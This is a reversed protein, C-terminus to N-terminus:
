CVPVPEFRRRRKPATKRHPAQAQRYRPLRLRLAAVVKPSQEVFLYSTLDGPRSCRSRVAFRALSWASMWRPRDGNALLRPIDGNCSSADAAPRLDVWAAARM